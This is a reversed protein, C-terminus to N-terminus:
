IEPFALAYANVSTQLKKFDIWQRLDPPLTALYSVFLLNFDIETDDYTVSQVLAIAEGLGKM